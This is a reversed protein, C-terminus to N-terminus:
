KAKAVELDHSRLLLEMRTVASELERRAKELRSSLYNLPLIAVIAVILGFGVTILSESIGGTIAATKGALDADGVLGFAHIMGVVTGLLGLLPGLTVATDMIFLGRNFKDLQANSEEIMADSYSTDRHTLGKYLVRATRDKCDKGAKIAEDIKEHEVLNFMRQVCNHDACIKENIIFLIREIVSGITVISLLLIPWMIPGGQIFTEIM